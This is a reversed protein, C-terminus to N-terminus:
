APRPRVRPVAVTAPNTYDAVQFSTSVIICQNKKYGLRCSHACLTRYNITVLSLEVPDNSSQLCTNNGIGLEHFLCISAWVTFCMRFTALNLCFWFYVEHFWGNPLRAEREREREGFCIKYRWAMSTARIYGERNVPHQFGIIGRDIVM